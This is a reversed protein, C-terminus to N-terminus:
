VKDGGFVDLKKTNEDVRKYLDITGEKTNVTAVREVYSCKEKIKLNDINKGHKDIYMM